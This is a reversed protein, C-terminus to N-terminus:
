GNHPGGKTMFKRTMLDRPEGGGRGGAEGVKAGGRVEGFGSADLRLEV